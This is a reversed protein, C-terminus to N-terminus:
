GAAEVKEKKPGRRRTVKPKEAQTDGAPDFYYSSKETIAKTPVTEGERIRRKGVHVTKGVPVIFSM